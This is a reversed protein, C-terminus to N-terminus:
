GEDDDGGPPAKGFKARLAATDVMTTPAEDDAVEPEGEGDAQAEEGGHRALWMRRIDEPIPSMETPADHEGSIPPQLGAEALLQATPLLETGPDDGGPPQLGAEALLQATPVLETGPDAREGSESPQIEPQAEPEPRPQV